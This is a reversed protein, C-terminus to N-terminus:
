SIPIGLGTGDRVFGLDTRLLKRGTYDAPGTTPKNTENFLPADPSQMPPPPAQAAKQPRPPDSFCM